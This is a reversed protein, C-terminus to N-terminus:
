VAVPATPICSFPQDVTTTLLPLIQTSDEYFPFHGTRPRVASADPLFVSSSPKPVRLTTIYISSSSSANNSINIHFTNLLQWDPNHNRMFPQEITLDHSDVLSRVVM